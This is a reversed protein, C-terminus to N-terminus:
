PAGTAHSLFGYNGNGFQMSTSASTDAKTYAGLTILVAAFTGRPAVSQEAKELRRGINTM